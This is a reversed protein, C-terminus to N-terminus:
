TSGSAAEQHRERHEDVAVAMEVERIEARFHLLNDGTRM